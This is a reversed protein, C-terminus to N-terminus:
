DYWRWQICGDSSCKQYPTKKIIELSQLYVKTNVQFFSQDSIAIEFTDLNMVIENNGYLDYSKHGLIEFDNESVNLTIGVVQENKKIHEVLDEVLRKNKIDCSLHSLCKTKKM